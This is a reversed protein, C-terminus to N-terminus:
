AWGWGGSWRGSLPAASIFGWRGASARLSSRKQSILWRWRPYAALCSVKSQRAALLWGWGGASAAVLNCVAALMMSTFMLAKRSVVQAFAGSLLIAFALAGTTLSLALSATAANVGFDEPFEPLLPQVCYILSFSAFGALFLAWSARRFSASDGKIWTPEFQAPAAQIAAELTAPKPM